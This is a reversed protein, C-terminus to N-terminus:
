FTEAPQQEARSPSVGEPLIDNIHVLSVLSGGWKGCGSGWGAKQIDQRCMSHNTPEVKVKIEDGEPKCVMTKIEFFTGM